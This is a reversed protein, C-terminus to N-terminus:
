TGNPFFHGRTVLEMRREEKDGAQAGRGEAGEALSGQHEPHYSWFDGSVCLSIGNNKVGSVRWDSGLSGQRGGFHSFTM